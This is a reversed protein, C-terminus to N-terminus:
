PFILIRSQEEREKEREREEKWVDHSSCAKDEMREGM